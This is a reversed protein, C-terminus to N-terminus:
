RRRGLTPMEDMWSLMEEVFSKTEAAAGEVAPFDDIDDGTSKRVRREVLRGNDYREFTEVVVFTSKSEAM